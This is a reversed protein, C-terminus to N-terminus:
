RGFRGTALHGQHAVIVLAIRQRRGDIRQAVGLV